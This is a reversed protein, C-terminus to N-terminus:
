VAKRDLFAAHISVSPDPPISLSDRGRPGCVMMIRLTKRAPTSKTIVATPIQCADKGCGTVAM